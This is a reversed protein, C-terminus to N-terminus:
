LNEMFYGTIMEFLHYRVGYLSHEKGPYLMLDFQKNLQQFKQALQMTNALHVNDDATGHILLLKGKLNEAYTLTSAAKYGDSNNSPTDMYRETYISDYNYWSTVPAVAVGVKFYDAANLLNLITAYGGYSWGWIGLRDTDIYPLSSLYKAGNIMDKVEYEGLRRYVQKSFESGRGGTGRNDLNVIIYGQQLLYQYWLYYTGRWQKSLSNSGPGGYVEFIVPYKRTSDFDGPKYMTAYVYDGDETPVRMFEPLVLQYDTLKSAASENMLAIERGEIDYLTIETPVHFDSYRDIYFKHDDSLMVNHNGNRQTLRTLGHGNLDIKYLHSEFPSETSGEFYVFKKKEDIGIVSKVDWEGRTLRKVIKGNLDYLYIHRFNSRDSTWIFQKRDKLFMLDDHVRIWGHDEKEELIVKSEGTEADAILLELHNQRRNMRQISLHKGDPLWQIRPIYIDTEEGIDMWTMTGNDIDVVGICVIANPDGPKPYRITEVTNHVESFDVIPFEPELSEDMYYFAIKRSDHSWFYGQRVEFEEEYVWDFRGILYHEAGETTLRILKRSSLDIIFLNHEMIFSVYKGDPSFVPFTKEKADFTLQETISTAITHIYFDEGDTLLISNGDPAWYHNKPVVRRVRSLSEFQPIEDTDFLRRHARQEVEYLYLTKLSDTKVYSIRDQGPVWELDGLHEGNFKEDLFIDELTFKQQALLSSTFLAMLLLCFALTTVMRRIM